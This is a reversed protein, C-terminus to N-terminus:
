QLNIRAQDMSDNIKEFMKNMKVLAEYERELPNEVKTPTFRGSPSSM